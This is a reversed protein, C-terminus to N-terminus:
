FPWTGGKYDLFQGTQEPTLADVRALMKTVSEEVSIPAGAGGMDTKAWGPNMAVVTIGDRRLDVSMSRVAMNLAAKSMRYGYAGGSTNDQISGMGSTICVVKRVSSKRLGPLVAATVRLAGLANTDITHLVDRYDLDSVAQMKGMVGANNVLIDVPGAGVAAGFSRVSSDSAVDCELIRLRGEARTALESLARASPPDRVAAVVSDGRGLFRNVLELGIGRNAGTVIVHM